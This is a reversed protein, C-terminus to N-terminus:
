RNSLSDPLSKLLWTMRMLSSFIIAAPAASVTCIVVSACMISRVFFVTSSTNIVAVRVYEAGYFFILERVDNGNGAVRLLVDRFKL